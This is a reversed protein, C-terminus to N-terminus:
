ILFRSLVTLKPQLVFPALPGDRDHYQTLAAPFRLFVVSDYLANPAPVFDANLDANGTLTLAPTFADGHDDCGCPAQVIVEPAADEAAANEGSQTSCCGHSPPAPQPEAHCNM